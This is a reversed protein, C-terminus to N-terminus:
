ILDCSQGQHNGDLLGKLLRSTSALHQSAIEQAEARDRRVLADLVQEQRQLCAEMVGPLWMVQAIAERLAAAFSGYLDVLVRNNTSAAIALQLEINTDLFKQRDAGQELSARMRDIIGTMKEVDAKTNRLAALRVIELELTERTEWVEIVNARRLREVLDDSSRVLSRVYTGDGQRVELLGAHALAGVAERLTTRGVELQAMLEPEPPLKDGVEFEGGTLREELQQIVQEALRQRRVPSFTRTKAENVRRNEETSM